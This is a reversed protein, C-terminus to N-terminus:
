NPFITFPQGQQSFVRLMGKGIQNVRGSFIVATTTYGGGDVIQPLIKDTSMANESNDVIIGSTEFYEGRENYHGRVTSVAIPQSAAASITLLGQFNAPISLGPIEHVYQSIQGNGPVELSASGVVSGDPALLHLSVPVAASASANAISIGTRVQSSGGNEVFLRFSQAPTASRLSTQSLTIGNAQYSYTLTIYPAYGGYPTVHVSGVQVTDSNGAVVLRQVGGAAVDYDFRSLTAGNVQLLVPKGAADSTGPSYFELSGRGGSMLIIETTWGGGAAFQPVLLPQTATDSVYPPVTSRAFTPVTTLLFDSRENTFGRLATIGIPNPCSIEVVGSFPAPAFFPPEDLFAATQGLPLAVNVTNLLKGTEDRYKLTVPVAFSTNSNVLALGTRVSDSIEGFIVGSYSPPAAPVTTESVLVGNDRYQIFAAGSPVIQLSAGSPIYSNSLVTDAKLVGYSVSAQTASGMSVVALSTGESVSYPTVGDAPNVRLIFDKSIGGGVPGLSYTFPFLGAKRPIGTLEYMGDPVGGDIHGGDTSIPYFYAGIGAGQSQYTEGVTGDAVSVPATSPNVWLVFAQNRSVGTADSVTFFSLYPFAGTPNGTITGNTSQSLGAPLSTAVWRYPATGGMATMTFNYPKGVVAAPLFPPATIVIGPAPDIAILFSSRSTVDDLVSTAEVTITNSGSESPFGSITGDSYLDLGKPLTGSTIRWTTWLGENQRPVRFFYSQAVKGSSPNASGLAFAPAPAVTGQVSITSVAGWADTAAVTFTYNGPVVVYGSLRFTPPYSNNELLVQVGAPLSGETIQFSFPATGLGSSQSVTLDFEDYINLDPTRGGPFQASLTIPDNVFLAFIVFALGNDTPMSVNVVVHQASVLTTSIVWSTESSTSTNVCDFIAPTVTPCDQLANAGTISFKASYPRGVTASSPLVAHADLRVGIWVDYPGATLTQHTATDTVSISVPFHNAVSFVGTIEVRSNYPTVPFLHLGDPTGGLSWEFPGVGGSVGINSQLYEGVAWSRTWISSIM